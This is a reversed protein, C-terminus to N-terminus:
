GTITISMTASIHHKMLWSLYQVDAGILPPTHCSDVLSFSPTNISKQPGLGLAVIQILFIPSALYV